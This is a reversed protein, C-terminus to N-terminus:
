RTGSLTSDRRNAEMRLVDICAKEIQGIEYTHHDTKNDCVHDAIEAVVIEPKPM